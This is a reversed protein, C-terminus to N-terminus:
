KWANLVRMVDFMAIPQGKSVRKRGPIRIWKKDSWYDGDFSARPERRVYIADRDFTVEPVYRSGLESALPEHTLDPEPNTSELLYEKGMLRTVVWAHGGREACRGVAVRANFGRALLWDALMIASDECDGTHLIQTEQAFQWTDASEDAPSADPNPADPLYKCTHSVGSWILLMESLPPLNKPFHAPPQYGTLYENVYHLHAKTDAAFMAYVRHCTPCELTVSRSKRSIQCAHGNGCHSCISFFLDTPNELLAEPSLLKMRKGAILVCSMELRTASPLVVVAVHTFSPDLAGQWQSIQDGLNKETLSHASFPLVDLYAPSADRVHQKLSNLDDNGKNLEGRLWDRLGIDCELANLNVAKRADAIAEVAAQELARTDVEGTQRHWMAELLSGSYSVKGTRMGAALASITGLLFLPLFTRRFM